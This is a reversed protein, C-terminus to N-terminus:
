HWLYPLWLYPLWLQPVLSFVMRFYLYVPGSVSSSNLPLLSGSVCRVITYLFNIYLFMRESNQKYSNVPHM